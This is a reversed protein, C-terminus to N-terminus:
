RLFRAFFRLGLHLLQARHTRHARFCGDHAVIEIPQEGQRPALLALDLLIDILRLFDKMVVVITQFLDLLADQLIQSHLLTRAFHLARDQAQDARRTDALRRKALRDGLRRPAFKHAHAKAAHPVLGFNTAM